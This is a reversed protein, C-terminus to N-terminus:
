GRRDEIKRKLICVGEISNQMEALMTKIEPCEKKNESHGKKIADCERKM